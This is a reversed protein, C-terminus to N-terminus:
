SRKLKLKKFVIWSICWMIFIFTMWLFTYWNFLTKNLINEKKELKQKQEPIINYSWCESLKTLEETKKSYYWAMIANVPVYGIDDSPIKSALEKDIIGTWTTVWWYTEAVKFYYSKWFEKFDPTFQPLSLVDNVIYWGNFYAKFCTDHYRTIATFEYIRNQPTLIRLKTLKFCDYKRFYEDFGIIKWYIQCTYWPLEAFTTNVWLFLIVLITFLRITKFM